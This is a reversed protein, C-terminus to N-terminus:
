KNEINKVEYLLEILSEKLVPEGVLNIIMECEYLNLSENLNRILSKRLEIIKLQTILDNKFVSRTESTIKLRIKREDSNIKKLNLYDIVEKIRVKAFEGIFGNELFFDNHLLQHINAGFTLSEQFYPKGDKLRLVNQDPIDSLIFPSHTVLLLHINKVLKLRLDKIEKLLYNILKRQYEPHFYLEVEDFIILANEYKIKKFTDNNSKDQAPNEFKFYSDLNNLHYLTSQVSNILQLEGSSMEEMMIVENTRKSKLNIKIKFLGPPLFEMPLSGFSSIRTEFKDFPVHFITKKNTLREENLIIQYKMFNIAQRLKLTVHSKDKKLESFYDKLRSKDFTALFMLPISASKLDLFRYYKPYTYAIKYLKKVIYKKVQESFVVDITPTSDGFFEKLLPMILDTNINLNSEVILDDITRTKPGGTESDYDLYELREIKKANLYFDISDIYLDDTLFVLSKTKSAKVISNSLLRYRAFENELNIKFDGHTRMPNIVIPTQYSDNKHFLHNIWYGLHTDNLGHISYNVVITYFLKEFEIQGIDTNEIFEYYKNDENYRGEYIISREINNSNDETNEYRCQIRYFKNEGNQFYLDCLLFSEPIDVRHRDELLIGKSISINNIILYIMELLTSKGAGNAGVIASVEINTNEDSYINIDDIVNRPKICSGDKIIEYTNLFYFLTNGELGKLYNHTKPRIRELETLKRGTRIALLRFGNM